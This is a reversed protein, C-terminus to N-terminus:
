FRVTEPAVAETGFLIRILWLLFKVGQVQDLRIGSNNTAPQRQGREYKNARRVRERLSYAAILLL